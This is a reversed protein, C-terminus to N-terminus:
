SISFASNSRSRAAFVPSSGAAGFPNTVALLPSPVTFDSGDPPWGASESASTLISSASDYNYHNTDAHAAMSEDYRITRNRSDNKNSTQKTWLLIVAHITM